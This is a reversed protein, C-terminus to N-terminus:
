SCLETIVLTCQLTLYCVLQMVTYGLGESKQLYFQKCCETVYPVLQCFPGISLNKRTIPLWLERSTQVNRRLRRFHRLHCHNPQLMPCTSSYTLVVPKWYIKSNQCRPVVLYEHGIVITLKVLSMCNTDSVNVQGYVTFYKLTRLARLM